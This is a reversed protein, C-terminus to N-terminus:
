TKGEDNVEKEIKVPTVFIMIMSVILIIVWSFPNSLMFIIFGVVKFRYVVKGLVKDKTISEDEADNSDGKTTIVNKNEKIIRHTVFNNNYEYTVIDNISYDDQKKIIVIDNIRLTPEMSGSVVRYIRYGFFSM